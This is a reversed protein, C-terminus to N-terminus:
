KVARVAKILDRVTDSTVMEDYVSDMASMFGSKDEIKHITVGQEEIAKMAAVEDEIWLERQMQAAQKGAEAVRAQDEASLSDWVSRSMVLVDPVMLHEDLAYHKVVEHHRTSVVSPPNNEAGDVVGTQLATYVEAFALPTANAGIAEAMAVFMQANPVRLKQGKADEPSLIPKEATYFSRAGADFWGLAIMNASSLMDSLQQGIEGDVVKFMHEKSSFIYPLSTVKFGEVTDSLAGSSFLAWDVGGINIQEIASTQDGLLGNHFVKATHRGETAAEVAQAFYEMAQGNPNDPTHLNWGVLEKANVQVSLTALGLLAASLITKSFKM